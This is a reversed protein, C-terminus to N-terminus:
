KVRICEAWEARDPTPVSMKLLHLKENQTELCNDQPRVERKCHTASADTRQPPEQLAPSRVWTQGLQGVTLGERGHRLWECAGTQMLLPRGGRGGGSRGASSAACADQHLEKPVRKM